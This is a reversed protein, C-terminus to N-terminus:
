TVSVQAMNAFYHLHQGICQLLAEDSLDASWEVLRLYWRAQADLVFHVRKEEPTPKVHRLITWAKPLAKRVIIADRRVGASSLILRLHLYARKDSKLCPVGSARDHVLFSYSFLIGRRELRRVLPLVRKRVLRLVALAAPVKARLTIPMFANWVTM